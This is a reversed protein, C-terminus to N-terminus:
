LVASAKFAPAGRRQSGLARGLTQAPPQETSLRILPIQAGDMAAKLSEVHNEWSRQYQSRVRASGADLWAQRSGDTVAYRGPPPPLDELPDTTWLARVDQHRRLARLRRLADDDLEYFDSIIVTLAGPRALRQLRALANALGAPRQLTQAGVPVSGVLAQILRMVGRRGGAPALEHHDPELALVAGVRDGGQIAAWGLLAAIEAALEAKLVRKSGFYMSPALDVLLLVPREREETFLKTHVRGTRATVRWDLQRVDDGPQYPRSELYDAGRSKFRSAHGGALVSSVPRGPRIGLARAERELAILETAAISWDPGTM